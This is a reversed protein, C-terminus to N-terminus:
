YEIARVLDADVPMLNRIGFTLSRRLNKMGAPSTAEKGLLVIGSFWLGVPDDVRRALILNALDLAETERGAAMLHNFYPIALDSRRPARRVLDEVAARFEADPPGFRERYLPRTFTIGSLINTTSVALKLSKPGGEETAAAVYMNLIDLGRASKEDPTSAYVHQILTTDYVERLGAAFRRDFSEKGGTRVIRDIAARERAINNSGIGMLTGSVALIAFAALGAAPMAWHRAVVRGNDVDSGVLIVMAIAMVPLTHPMQFWFSQLTVLLLTVFLALRRREAPATFVTAAGYAIMLGAAAIGSSLLAEFYQNHSHFDARRLADWYVQSPGIFEHLRGQVISLNALLAENYHGWGEGVLLRWPADILSQAGVVVLMARSWISAWSDALLAPLPGLGSTALLSARIAETWTSGILVIAAGVAPPMIVSLWV